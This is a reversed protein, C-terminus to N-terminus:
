DANSLVYEERLKLVEVVKTKGGRIEVVKKIMVVELNHM